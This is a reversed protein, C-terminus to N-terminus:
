NRNQLDDKKEFLFSVRDIRDLDLLASNGSLWKLRQVHSRDLIELFDSAFFWAPFRTFSKRRFSKLPPPTTVTLRTKDSDLVPIDGILLLEHNLQVLQNLTALPDPFFLIANNIMVLDYRNATLVSFDSYYNLGKPRDLPARSVVSQTELVDWDLDIESYLGLIERALYFYGGGGGGVDLVRLKRRHRNTCLSVCLIAGLQNGSLISKSQRDFQWVVQAAYRDSFIGQGCVLSAEAFSDFSGIFANEVFLRNYLNLLSYRRLFRGLLKKM